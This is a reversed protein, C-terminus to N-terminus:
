FPTTCSKRSGMPPISDDLTLGLSCQHRIKGFVFGFLGWFGPVEGPKRILFSLLTHHFVPFLCQSAYHEEKAKQHSGEAIGSYRVVKGYPATDIHFALEIINVNRL